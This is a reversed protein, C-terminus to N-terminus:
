GFRLRARPRVQTARPKPIAGAFYENAAPPSSWNESQETAFPTELYIRDKRDHMSM